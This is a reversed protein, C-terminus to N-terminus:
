RSSGSSPTRELLWLDAPGGDVNLKTALKQRVLEDLVPRIRDDVGAMADHSLAVLQIGHSRLLARIAADDALLTPRSWGITALSEYRVPFYGGDLVPMDGLMRTGKPWRSLADALPGMGSIRFRAEALTQLESFPTRDFRADLRRNGPMWNATTLVMFLCFAIIAMAGGTVPKSTFPTPATGFIGVWVAVHLMVIPVIFYNGDAGDNGYRYAYLLVYMSFGVILLFVTVPKLMWRWGRIAIAAVLLPLWGNGMWFLAQHIYSAPGFLSDILGGPFPTRFTPVYRGIDDHLHWGLLAQLDLLVDPSVFAVGAQEFTRLCVLGATLLALAMPVIDSRWARRVPQTLATALLFLFIAAAYPLVTLRALPALVVAAVGIGLWGRSAADDKLKLGALVGFVCLWAALLEGKPTAASAAVAPVACCLLAGLWAHRTAVGLNGLVERVTLALLLWCVLSFGTVLSASGLGLFPAQLAEALKPYFHVHAILGQADFLNGEGFLMRDANLGYWLADSDASAAAKAGLMLTVTVFAALLMAGGHTGPRELLEWTSHWRWASFVLATGLIVIALTRLSALDGWGAFSALWIIASWTLLGLLTHRLHLTLTNGDQLGLVRNCCRGLGHIGALYAGLLVLTIDIGHRRAYVEACVAALWAGGRPLRLSGYVTGFLLLCEAMSKWALSRSLQRVFPGSGEYLAHWPLWICAAVLVWWCLWGLRVRM